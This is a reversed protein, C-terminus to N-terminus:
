PAVIRLTTAGSGDIVNLAYIGSASRNVPLSVDHETGTATKWFVIAKGQIDFVKVLTLNRNSKLQIKGASYNAFIRQTTRSGSVQSSIGTTGTFKKFYNWVEQAESFDTGNKIEHQMGAVSILTIEGGQDCPGWYDKTLKSNGNFNNTTQKDPCHWKNIFFNLFGQLDSYKVFNDAAGHIHFIPKPPAANCGSTGGLLYGSNPGFAAFKDPISCELAYSMMGGMSFGTEFVKKPDVNYRKVMSDILAAIYKVDNGGSSLDWTSGDSNPYVVIFKGQDAVKDMGSLQEQQSANSSMGHLDLVLAPNAPLGSPVHIIYTRSKGGITMSGNEGFAAWTFFVSLMLFFLVKRM